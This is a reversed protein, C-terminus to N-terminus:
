RATSTPRAGTPRCSSPSSRGAKQSLPLVEGFIEIACVGGHLLMLPDGSGHIEYYIRLGNVEAYNGEFGDNM